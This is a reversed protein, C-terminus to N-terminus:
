GVFYLFLRCLSYILSGFSYQNSIERIGGIGLAFDLESQLTDTTLNRWNGFLNKSKVVNTREVDRYALGASYNALNRIMSPWGKGHLTELQPSILSRYFLVEKPNALLSPDALLGSIYSFFLSWSAEHIKSSNKRLTYSQLHGGSPSDREVVYTGGGLTSTGSLTLKKLKSLRLSDVFLIPRGILRHFMQASFFGFYYITVVGWADSRLRSDLSFRCIENLHEFCHNTLLEIDLLTSIAVDIPSAEVKIDNNSISPVNFSGNQNLLWDSFTSTRTRSTHLNGQPFAGLLDDRIRLFIPGKPIM